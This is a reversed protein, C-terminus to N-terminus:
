ALEGTPISLEDHHLDKGQPDRLEATPIIPFKASPNGSDRRCESSDTGGGGEPSAQEPSPAAPLLARSAGPNNDVNFMPKYLLLPTSPLASPARGVHVGAQEGRVEAEFRHFSNACHMLEYSAGREVLYPKRLPHNIDSPRRQFSSAQWKRLPPKQQSDPGGGCFHLHNGQSNALPCQVLELFPPSFASSKPLATIFGTRVYSGLPM